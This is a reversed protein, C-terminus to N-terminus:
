YIKRFTDNKIKSIIKKMEDITFVPNEKHLMRHCNSCVIALDELKTKILGDAQHLPVLHHVECFEKGIDGYIKEFDFACVESKIKDGKDIVERKKDRIIKRNRERILHQRLIPNGESADVDLPINLARKKYFNFIPKDNKELSHINIAEGILRLFGNILDEWFVNELFIHGSHDVRMGANLISKIKKVNNIYETTFRQKEGFLRLLLEKNKPNSPIKLNWSYIDEDKILMSLDLEFMYDKKQDFLILYYPYPPDRWQLFKVEMGNNLFLTQYVGGDNDFIIKGDENLHDALAYILDLGIKKYLNHYKLSM